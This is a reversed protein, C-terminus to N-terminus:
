VELEVDGKELHQALASGMACALKIQYNESQLLLDEQPNSLFGCEVLIGTCQIKEMLYVSSAAKIERRNGPDM